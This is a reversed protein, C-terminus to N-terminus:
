FCLLIATMYITKTLIMIVLLIWIDNIPSSILAEKDAQLLPDDEGCGVGLGVM